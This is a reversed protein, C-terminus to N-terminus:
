RPQLNDQLPLEPNEAAHTVTPSINLAITKYM